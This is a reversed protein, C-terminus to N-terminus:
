IENSDNSIKINLNNWIQAISSVGGIQSKHGKLIDCSEKPMDKSEPETLHDLSM